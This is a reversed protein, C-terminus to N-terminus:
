SQQRPTEKRNYSGSERALEKGQLKQFEKGSIMRSSISFMRRLELTLRSPSDSVKMLIMQWSSWFPSILNANLRLLMDLAQIMMM